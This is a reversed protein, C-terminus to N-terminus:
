RGGGFRVSGFDVVLRSLGDEDEGLSRFVDVVERLLVISPNNQVRAGM